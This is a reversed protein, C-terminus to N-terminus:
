DMKCRVNSLHQVHGAQGAVTKNEIKKEVPQWLFHPVEYRPHGMWVRYTTYAQGHTVGLRRLQKVLLLRKVSCSVCGWRHIWPETLHNQEVGM